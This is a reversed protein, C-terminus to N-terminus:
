AILLYSVVGPGAAWAGDCQGASLRSVLAESAADLAVVRVRRTVIAGPDVRFKAEATSTARASESLM